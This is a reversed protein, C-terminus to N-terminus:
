EFWADAMAGGPTEGTVIANGTTYTGSLTQATKILCQVDTGDTGVAIGAVTPEVTVERNPTTGINHYKITSLPGQQGITYICGTALKVEIKKNTDCTVVSVTGAESFEYDCGNMVVEVGASGNVTCESYAALVTVTSATKTASVGHGTIKKCTFSVSETAAANEVIFVQHGTKGEGDERATYTCPAVSCHFKEAAQAGSAGMAGLATLALAAAVLIKFNRVM